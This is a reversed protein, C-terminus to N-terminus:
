PNEEGTQVAFYTLYKLMRDREWDIESLIQKDKGGKRVSQGGRLDKVLVAATNLFRSNFTGHIAIL